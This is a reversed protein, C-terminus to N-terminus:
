FGLMQLKSAKFIYYSIPADTDDRCISNVSERIARVLKVFQRVYMTDSLQDKVRNAIFIGDLLMYDAIMLRM